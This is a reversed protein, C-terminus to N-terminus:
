AVSWVKCSELKPAQLTWRVAESIKTSHLPNFDWMRRRGLRKLREADNRPGVQLNQFVTPLDSKLHCEVFLICGTHM